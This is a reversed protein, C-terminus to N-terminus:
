RIRNNRTSQLLVEQPKTRSAKRKPTSRKMIVKRLNKDVHSKHIGRLVKTKKTCSCRLSAFTKSKIINFLNIYTLIMFSILIPGNPEM